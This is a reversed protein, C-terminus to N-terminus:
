IATPAYHVLLWIKKFWRLKSVSLYVDSFCSIFDNSRWSVLSNSKLKNATDRKTGFNRFNLFWNSRAICQQSSICFSYIDLGFFRIKRDNNEVKHFTPSINKKRLFKVANSFAVLKRRLILFLFLGKKKWTLWRKSLLFTFFFWKWNWFYSSKVAAKPCVAETNNHSKIRHYTKM